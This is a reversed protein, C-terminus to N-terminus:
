KRKKRNERIRSIGDFALGIITGIAEIGSSIDYTDDDEEDDDDEETANYFESDGDAEYFSGSGDSKRYGWSGDNGYYSASGDSNRYGWSGDNGNQECRSFKTFKGDGDPDFDFENSNGSNLYEWGRDKKAMNESGKVNKNTFTM